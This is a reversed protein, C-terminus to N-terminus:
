SKAVAAAAPSGRRYAWSMLLAGTIIMPLCLIQGRTMWDFLDFGIQRDPERFFEVAFRFLGYLLLFLGGVAGTPRPQRSYWFLVGFLVIGELTAQYLQSPHRVLQEPDRPFVMGWSVDTARGWLEQGIFNGIRGLGLGIPVLPAAFDTVALFPQHIRHAFLFLAFIVGLLGGHFSMGGEWLRFLWLPDALWKDFNYFVVYGCRGGLIVGFASYVILDEIQNTQVPAGPRRSRQRALLWAAAFGVLYMVGYWHARVPGVSFAIPDIVPYTLM